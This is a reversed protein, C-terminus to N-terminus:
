MSPELVFDEAPRPLAHVEEFPIILGHTGIGTKVHGLSPVFVVYTASKSQIQTIEGKVKEGKHSISVQDGEKRRPKVNSGTVWQAVLEAQADGCFDNDLLIQMVDDSIDFGEDALERARSFTDRESLASGIKVMSDSSEEPQALLALFNKAAREYTAEDHRTPRKAISM